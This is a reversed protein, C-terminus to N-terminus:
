RFNLSVLKHKYHQTESILATHILAIVLAHPPDLDGWKFKRVPLLVSYWMANPTHEIRTNKIM